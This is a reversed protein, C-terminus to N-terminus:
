ILIVLFRGGSAAKWMDEAVDEAVVVTGRHVLVGARGAWAELAACGEVDM